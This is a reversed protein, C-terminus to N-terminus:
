IHILLPFILIPITKLDMCFRDFLFGYGEWHVKKAKAPECLLSLKQM